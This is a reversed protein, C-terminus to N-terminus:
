EKLTRVGLDYLAFCQTKCHCLTAFHAQVSLREGRTSVCKCGVVQESIRSFFGDNTRAAARSRRAEVETEVAARRAKDALAKARIAAVEPHITKGPATPHSVM